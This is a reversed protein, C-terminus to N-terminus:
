LGLFSSLGGRQTVGSQQPGIVSAGREHMVDLGQQQQQNQGLQGATGVTGHTQASLSIGIHKAYDTATHLQWMGGSGAVCELVHTHHALLAMRHGVSVYCPVRERYGAPTVPLLLPM